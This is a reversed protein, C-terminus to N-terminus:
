YFQKEKKECRTEPNTILGKLARSNNFTEAEDIVVLKRSEVADTFRGFLDQSADEVLNVINNGMILDILIFLSNKGCGQISRFVCATM